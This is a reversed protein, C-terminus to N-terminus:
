RIPTAPPAEHRVCMLEADKRWPTSPSSRAGGGGGFVSIVLPAILGEGSTVCLTSCPPKLESTNRVGFGPKEASHPLRLSFTPLCTQGLGPPQHPSSDLCRGRLLPGPALTWAPHLPLSLTRVWLPDCSPVHGDSSTAMPSTVFGAVRCARM